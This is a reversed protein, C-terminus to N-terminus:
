KRLTGVLHRYRYDAGKRSRRKSLKKLLRGFGAAASANAPVAKPLDVYAMDLVKTEVSDYYNNIITSV